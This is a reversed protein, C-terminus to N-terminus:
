RAPTAASPTRHSSVCCSSPRHSPFLRPIVDGERLWTVGRWLADGRWWVAGRWRCTVQLMRTLKSNRYPVHVKGRKRDDGLASIVNGLALLGQNIAIGEKMRQGSAMTRKARESGALDVFHFKATRIETGTARPSSEAGSEGADGDRDDGIPLHQELFLTFIAHSRSSHTNMMTSGTARALSGDELHRLTESASTVM